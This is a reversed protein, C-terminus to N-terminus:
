AKKGLYAEIVLENSRIEQPLGEAIKKGYDLVIIRDSINMVVKMDHEILIVAIGDERIKRILGIMNETETPNMGATPEDLLLLSPRTALARAIELKKQQGYPLNKALENEKSKLGILGAIKYAARVDKEEERKFRKTKFLADAIGYQTQSFFGSLINELVTMQHFLRLNQFTRAVGLFTIQHPKLGVINKGKFRIGGETPQYIGSLINFFTTKGAGNPGILAVIQREEIKLYIRDLVLLGEFNKSINEAAFFVTKNKM